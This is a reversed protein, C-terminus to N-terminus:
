EQRVANKLLVNAKAAKASVVIVTPFGSLSPPFTFHSTVPVSLVFTWITMSTGPAVVAFPLALNSSFASIALPKVTVRFPAATFISFAFFASFNKSSVCSFSLIAPNVGFVPVRSKWRNVSEANAPISWSPRSDCNWALKPKSPMKASATKLKLSRDPLVISAKNASVYLLKSASRGMM